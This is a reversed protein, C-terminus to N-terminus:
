KLFNYNLPQVQANRFVSAVDKVTNMISACGAKKMWMSPLMLASISVIEAYIVIGVTFVDIRRM